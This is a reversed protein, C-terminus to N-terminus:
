DIKDKSKEYKKGTVDYLTKGVVPYNLVNIKKIEDMLLRLYAMQVRGDQIELKLRVEREELQKLQITCLFCVSEIRSVERFM